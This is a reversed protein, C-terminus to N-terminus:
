RKSSEEAKIKWAKDVVAEAPLGEIVRRLGRHGSTLHFLIASREKRYLCIIREGSIKDGAETLVTM